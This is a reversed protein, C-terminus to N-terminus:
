SVLEFCHKGFKFRQFYLCSVIPGSYGPSYSDTEPSGAIWYTRRCDKKLKGIYYAVLLNLDKNYGGERRLEWDAM